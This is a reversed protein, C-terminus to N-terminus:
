SGSSQRAAAKGSESQAGAPLHNKGHGLRPRDDQTGSRYLRRVNRQRRVDAPGVAAGDSSFGAEGCAATVGLDKLYAAEDFPLAAFAKREQPTSRSSTTM